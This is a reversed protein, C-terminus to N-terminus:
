KIGEDYEVLALTAAVMSGHPAAGLSQFAYLPGDAIEVGYDGGQLRTFRDDRFSFWGMSGGLTLGIVLAVATAGKLALPQLTWIERWWRSLSGALVQKQRAQAAAQIRTTLFPPASQAPLSALLPALEQLDALVARCSACRTLHREVLIQERGSLVKDLFASLRKRYRLCTLM